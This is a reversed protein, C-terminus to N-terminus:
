EIGFYACASSIASGLGIGAIEAVVAVAPMALGGTGACLALASVIVAVTIFGIAAAIGDARKWDGHTEVSEGPAFDIWFELSKTSVSSNVLFVDLDFGTLVNRAQTTVSRMTTFDNAGNLLRLQNALESFDNFYEKNETVFDILNNTNMSNTSAIYDKVDNNDIVLNSNNLITEFQIKVGSVDSSSRMVNDLYNNHDIGIQQIEIDTLVRDFFNTSKEISIFDENIDHYDNYQSCSSFLMLFSFFLTISKLHTKFIM